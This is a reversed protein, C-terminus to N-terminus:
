STNQPTPTPLAQHVRLQVDAERISRARHEIEKKLSPHDLLQKRLEADEAITSIDPKSAVPAEPAASPTVPAEPAQQEVQAQQPAEAVAAPTGEDM